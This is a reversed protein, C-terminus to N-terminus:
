TAARGRQDVLRLLDLRHALVVADFPRRWATGATGDPAQATIRAREADGLHFLIHACTPRDRGVQPAFELALLQEVEHCRRGVSSVGHLDDVCLNVDPRLSDRRQAAQVALDLGGGLFAPLFHVFGADIGRQDMRGVAPIRNWGQRWRGLFIGVAKGYHGTGARRDSLRLRMWPQRLWGPMIPRRQRREIRVLLLRQLPLSSQTHSAASFSPMGTPVMAPRNRGVKLLDGLRM